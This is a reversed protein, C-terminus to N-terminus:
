RFSGGTIRSGRDRIQPMSPPAKHAPRAATKFIRKLALSTIVVSISM